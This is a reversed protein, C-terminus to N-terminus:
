AVSVSQFLDVVTFGANQTTTGCGVEDISGGLANIYTALLETTFTFWNDGDPGCQFTMTTADITIRLWPLILAPFGAQLLVNGGGATYSAWRQAYLNIGDQHGFSILRGSTSNRLVVCQRSSGGHRNSVPSGRVTVAYPAAPPAGNKRLFRITDAATPTTLVIGRGNVANAATATGGVAQQLTFGTLDPITPAAEYGYGGGGGGAAAWLPDAGAGATQLFDGATGPLLVTWGLNGRYIVSGRTSSLQDLIEQVDAAITPSNPIAGDPTIQIGSGEQLMHANLYDVLTQESIGQQIDIQRQQAWKIFYLTPKGFQDVIAFKEDLPQLDGAM